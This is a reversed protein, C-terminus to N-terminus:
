TEAFISTCPTIVSPALGLTIGVQKETLRIKSASVVARHTSRGPRPLPVAPQEFDTRNKTLWFATM